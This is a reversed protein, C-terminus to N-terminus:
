GPGRRSRSFTASTSSSSRGKLSRVTACSRAILLPVSLRTPPPFPGCCTAHTLTVARYDLIARANLFHAVRDYPVLHIAGSADVLDLILRRAGARDVSVGTPILLADVTVDDFVERVRRNEVSITNILNARTMPGLDFFPQLSGELGPGLYYQELCNRQMSTPILSEKHFHALAAAATVLKVALSPVVVKTAQAYSYRKKLVAISTATTGLLRSYSAETDDPSVSFRPMVTATM